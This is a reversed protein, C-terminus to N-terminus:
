GITYTAVLRGNSDFGLLQVSALRGHPEPVVMFFASLGDVPKIYQKVTGLTVATISSIRASSRVAYGVVLSTKTNAIAGWDAILRRGHVLTYIGGSSSGTSCEFGSGARGYELAVLTNTSTSDGIPDLHAYAAVVMHRHEGVPYVESTDISQECTRIAASKIRGALDSGSSASAVAFGSIAAALAIAASCAILAPRRISSGRRSVEGM